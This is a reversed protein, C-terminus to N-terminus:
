LLVLFDSFHTLFRFLNFWDLWFLLGLLLIFLWPRYLVTRDATFFYYVVCNALAPMVIDAPVADELLSQLHLILLAAQAVM